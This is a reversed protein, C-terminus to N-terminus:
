SRGRDQRVPLHTAKALSQTGGRRRVIILVFAAGLTGVVDAIVDAFQALGTMLGFFQLTEVTGTLGILALEIWRLKLTPFSLGIAMALIFVSLAQVSQQQPRLEPHLVGFVGLGLIFALAFRSVQTLM